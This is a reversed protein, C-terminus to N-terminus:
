ALVPGDRWGKNRVKDWCLCFCPARGSVARKGLLTRPGSFCACLWLLLLGKLGCLPCDAAGSLAMQPLTPWPFEQAGHNLFPPAAPRLPLSFVSSFAEPETRCNISTRQTLANNNTQM